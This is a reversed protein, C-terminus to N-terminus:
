LYIFLQCSNPDRFLVCTFTNLATRTLICALNYKRGGAVYFFDGIVAGSVGKWYYGPMTPGVKWDWRYETPAPSPVPTPNSSITPAPTPAPAVSWIDFGGGGAVYVTSDKYGAAQWYYSDSPM